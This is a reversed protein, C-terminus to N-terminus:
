HNQWKWLKMCLPCKTIKAKADPYCKRCIGGSLHNQHCQADPLEMRQGRTIVEQCIVCTPREPVNSSPEQSVKAEKSTISTDERKRKRSDNTSNNPPAISDCTSDMIGFSSTVLTESSSLSSRAKSKLKEIEEITLSPTKFKATFSNLQVPKTQRAQVSLVHNEDIDIKVLVELQGKPVEDTLILRGLEVNKKIDRHEGEYFM